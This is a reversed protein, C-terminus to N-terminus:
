VDANHQPFGAMPVPRGHQSGRSTLTIGLASSVRVADSEFAEFFSGVQFLVVHDRYAAKVVDYQRMMPSGTPLSTTSSDWRLTVYGTCTCAFIPTRGLRGSGSRYLLRPLVGSIGLLARSLAM